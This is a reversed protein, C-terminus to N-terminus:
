NKESDKSKAKCVRILKKRQVWRGLRLQKVCTTQRKKRWKISVKRISNPLISTLGGNVNVHCPFAM